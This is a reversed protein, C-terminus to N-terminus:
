RQRMQVSSAQRRHEIQVNGLTADGAAVVTVEQSRFWNSRNFTLRNPSVNVGASDSPLTPRVTSGQNTGLRTLRVRYSASGDREVTVSTSSVQVGYRTGPNLQTMLRNLRPLKEFEDLRVTQLRNNRLDITQVATLGDFVGTGLSSLRNDYLVLETLGRLQDFVGRSLSSLRGRELNISQLRSLGDFLGTPLSTVPQDYFSLRRMGTLGAFDGRRLSTIRGEDVHFELYTVKALWEPTVGSCTGDYGPTVANQLVNLIENRVATTRGCIGTSVSPTGVAVIVTATSTATGDSVTYTFRATGTFSSTPTYLVRTNDSNPEATGSNPRTVAAVTLTNGEADRDNALVNITVAEGTATAVSDNAAVPATNVLSPDVENTMATTSASWQSPTEGNLAQVQVEYTTAARFVPSDRKPEM